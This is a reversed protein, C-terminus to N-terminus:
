EYDPIDYGPLHLADTLEQVRNGSLEVSVEILRADDLDHELYGEIVLAQNAFDGQLKFPYRGTRDFYRGLAGLSGGLKFDLGAATGEGTLLVKEGNGPGAGRMKAVTAVINKSEDKQLYIVKTQDVKLKALYINPIQDLASKVQKEEVIEELDVTGVLQKSRIAFSSDALEVRKLHVLTKSIFDWLDIEVAFYGIQIKEAVASKDTQELTFNNLYFSPSMGIVLRIDEFSTVQWSSNKEILNQIRDKHQSLDIQSIILVALCLSALLGFLVGLIIKLIKM